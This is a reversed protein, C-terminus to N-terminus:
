GTADARRIERFRRAPSDTIRRVSDTIHRVSCRVTYEGFNARGVHMEWGGIAASQNQAAVGFEAGILLEGGTLEIEGQRGLRRRAEGGGVEHM